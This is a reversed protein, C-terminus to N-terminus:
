YGTAFYKKKVDSSSFRFSEVHGDLFLINGIDNKVHPFRMHYNGGVDSNKNWGSVLAMAQNMQSLTKMESWKTETYDLRGTTTYAGSNLTAEAMSAIETPRRFQTIRKLTTYDSTANPSSGSYTWPVHVGMNWGYCMQYQNTIYTVSPCEFVTKDIMSQNYKPLYLALIDVSNMKGSGTNPNNDYNAPYEYAHNENLYLNEAIGIQRMNSMCKVLRSQERAANLVPLLMAVLAAIIGIVVLLEVLTFARRSALTM